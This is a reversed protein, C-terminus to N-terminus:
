RRLRYQYGQVGNHYHRVSRELQGERVLEELLINIHPSKQRRIARSVEARTLPRPAVSFLHLIIARMEERTRHEQRPRQPTDTV